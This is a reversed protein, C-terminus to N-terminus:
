GQHNIREETEQMKAGFDCNIAQGYAALYHFM